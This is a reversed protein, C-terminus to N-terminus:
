MPAGGGSRAEAGVDEWVVLVEVRQALSGM